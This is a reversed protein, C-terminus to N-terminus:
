KFGRVTSYRIHIDTTMRIWLLLGVHLFTYKYLNYGLLHLMFSSNQVTVHWRTISWQFDMDRKNLSFFFKDIYDNWV